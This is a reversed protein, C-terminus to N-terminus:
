ALRDGSLRRPDGVCCRAVRAARAAAKAAPSVSPPKPRRFRKYPRGWRPAPRKKTGQPRDDIGLSIPAGPMLAYFAKVSLRSVEVHKVFLLRLLRATRGGRRRANKKEPRSAGSRTDNVTLGVTACSLISKYFFELGGCPAGSPRLSTISFGSVQFLTWRAIASAIFSCASFGM